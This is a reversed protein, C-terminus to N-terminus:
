LSVSSFANSLGFFCFSSSEASSMESFFSRVVLDANGCESFLQLGGVFSHCSLTSFMELVLPRRFSCGTQVCRDQVPQRSAALLMRIKRLLTSHGLLLCCLAICNSHLLLLFKRLLGQPVFSLSIGLNVGFLHSAESDFSCPESPLSTM